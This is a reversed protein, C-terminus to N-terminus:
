PGPWRRALYTTLTVEVEGNELSGNGNHDLGVAVAVLRLVPDGDDTVSCLYGGELGRSTEAFSEDYGYISQTKIKELERQALMLSRTRREIVRETAHAATLARLAPVVTILLLASAVVVETLTVGARVRRCRAAPLAAKDSPDILEDQCM